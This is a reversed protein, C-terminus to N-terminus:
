SKEYIETDAPFGKIVAYTDYDFVQEFYTKGTVATTDATKQYTSTTTNYEYHKEPDLTTGEPLAVYKYTTTKTYYTGSTTASSKIYNTEEEAFNITESGNAPIFTWTYHLTGTDRACAGFELTCTDEELAIVEDLNKFIYAVAPFTSTHSNAGNVVTTAFLWSPEDTYTVSISKALAPKIKVTVPTTNLSYICKNASDFRVFRISFKLVGDGDIVKDSLTWGFRIKASDYDILSILTSGSEGEPSQWQVFINTRILDETDFYRDVEFMLTEAHYDGDLGVASNFVSPVSISRTNLNITFYDEDLPVMLYKAYKAFITNWSDRAAAEVASAANLSHLGALDGIHTFYEELSTIDSELKLEAKADAFLKSYKHGEDIKLQTTIM